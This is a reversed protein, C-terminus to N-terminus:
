TDSAAAAPTAPQEPASLDNQDTCALVGVAAIAVLIRSM